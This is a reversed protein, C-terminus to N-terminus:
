CSTPTGSIATTRSKSNGTSDVCWSNTGGAGPLLGSIAYFTGTSYCTLTAGTPYNTSTTYTLMGSAADYFMSGAGTTPCAAAPSLASGYNGNTDYYIEAAARAGSLQAKVKADNGKGRATNLSALVVSSLIGIIAIVVLLEILTFGKNRKSMISKKIKDIILKYIV